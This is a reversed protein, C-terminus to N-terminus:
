ARRELAEKIRRLGERIQEKSTAYSLRIYEETEGDNKRGFSTRPLVAVSGEFLLYEQLAKSDKFGLRRCAETVNPFVYFSGQPRLCRIGEIANLGDVIRDRREKFEQVMRDSAHQPGQLAELGAYQTFTATCSECNTELRAIDRALDRNMVGYGLRWGTMAYTKSFGDILITREKMGPLSAISAFEGEYLIRSYVEDSIVWLDHRIALEAVAELDARSLVGGTPNQPSNLIILKTRPTILRRFEDLDFSFGKRELLAAPVPRAGVFNIMSEYIPFGPNPYIVEDGEDVCALIGHFIIPKAGPTVVVEEPDVAIGRTRSIYAAIEERFSILGASPGYHTENRAIAEMGAQKVHAPTDFDPEGICFSVISRGEKVLRNVVALVEFANETGLRSIRKAKEM